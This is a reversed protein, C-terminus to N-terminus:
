TDSISEGEDGEDLVAIGAIMVYAYYLWSRFFSAPRSGCPTVRQFNELVGDVFVM